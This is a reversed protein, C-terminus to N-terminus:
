PIHNLLIAIEENTMTEKESKDYIAVLIVMTEVIKVCTIVRAGGSKGAHKSKIKLRVKYLGKGLSDGQEPNTELSEIFAIVDQDLSPYKKSLRKQQKKFISTVAIRLKMIYFYNNKKFRLYM